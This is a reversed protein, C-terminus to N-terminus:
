VFVAEELVNASLVFNNQRITLHYRVFFGKSKEENGKQSKKKKKKKEWIWLDNGAFGFVLVQESSKRPRMASEAQNNRASQLDNRGFFKYLQLIMGELLLFVVQSEEAFLCRTGLRRLENLAEDVRVFTSHNHSAIERVFDVCALADVTRNAIPVFRPEIRVNAICIKVGVLSSNFVNRKTM